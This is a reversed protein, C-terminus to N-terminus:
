LARYMYKVAPFSPKMLYFASRISPSDQFPHVWSESHQIGALTKAHIIVIVHLVGPQVQLRKGTMFSTNQLLILRMCVPCVPIAMSVSLHESPQTPSFYGTVAWSWANIALILLTIKKVYLMKRQSKGSLFLHEYQEPEM